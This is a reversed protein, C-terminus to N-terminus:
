ETRIGARQAVARLRALEDIMATGYAAGTGGVIEMDDVKALSRRFEPDKFVTNLARNLLALPEKSMKAPGVFGTMITADFDPMGAEAFTPAGPVLLSRRKGTVALVRARNSAVATAALGPPAIMAHVEGAMVATLAPGAGKYPVHLLKLKAVDALQETIFHTSGGTGSSGYTYSAGEPMARVERVFGALDKANSKPGVVLAVSSRGLMAIPTLDRQPDLKLDPKLALATNLASTSFMITSGDPPAKAVYEAALLGAAGPKNEVVVAHGIRGTLKDAVVRAVADSGSGAAFGVVLRIPGSPIAGQAWVSSALLLYVSVLFTRRFLTTAM